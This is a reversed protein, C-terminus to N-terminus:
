TGVVLPVDNSSDDNQTAEYNEKEQSLYFLDFCNINRRRKLRSRRPLLFVISLSMFVHWSSHTFPYNEDTEVFAYISLGVGALIVGPLM